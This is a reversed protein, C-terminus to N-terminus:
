FRFYIFESNPSIMGIAAGLLIGFVIVALTRLRIAFRGPKLLAHYGASDLGPRYRAMLQQANPAFWALALGAAILAVDKASFPVPTLHFGFKHAFGQLANIQPLDLGSRGLMGKWIRWMADFGDARFPVWLFVIVLFTTLVAVPRPLGAFSLRRKIENWAHVVVLALGHAAGWVAFTWSAGHWLGGLTMTLFLNLYRRFAGHRSGGLAIYLYDRLFRSLTIHWRRWFDVISTAKYPSNFNVPLRIGMMLAIGIAMDSYGSFDFYIQVTYALAGIWAEFFAPDHGAHASYFVATAIPSVSDAVITKKALGIAFITLGTLLHNPLSVRKAQEFQSVMEKHHLIPGAILHPFLTVFLFYSSARYSQVKRAYSDALFAIQTFTYFSIGAPLAIDPLAGHYLGADHATSLILGFYKFYALILLDFVIGFVALATRMRGEASAILLGTAFNFLVSGILLFPYNPESRVYFLYSAAALAATSWRPGLRSQILWYGLVTIPLFAFIFEYSNFLM